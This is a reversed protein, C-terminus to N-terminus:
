YILACCAAEDDRYFRRLLTNMRKEAIKKSEHGGPL